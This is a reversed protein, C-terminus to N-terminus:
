CLTIRIQKALEHELLHLQGYTKLEKETYVWAVGGSVDMQSMFRFKDQIALHIDHARNRYVRIKAKRAVPSRADLDDTLLYFGLVAIQPLDPRLMQVAKQAIAFSIRVAYAPKAIASDMSGSADTFKLGVVYGDIGAVKNYSLMVMYPTEDVVIAEQKTRVENLLHHGAM